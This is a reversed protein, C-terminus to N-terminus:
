TLAKEKNHQGQCDQAHKGRDTEQCYFKEFQSLLGGQM